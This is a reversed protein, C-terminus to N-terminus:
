SPAASGKETRRNRGRQSARVGPRTSAPTWDFVTRAREIETYALRRGSVTIGDVDAALLTGTFRREGAAGPVTRGQVQRGVAAAFHRPTRLPRELGPSSVELLYRDAIVDALDLAGSLQKTLTSITDLDVGGERDVLVRVSGPAVEVDYLEIDEHGALSSAVLRRVQETTGM